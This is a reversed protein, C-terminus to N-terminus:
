SSSFHVDSQFIHHNSLICTPGELSHIFHPHYGCYVCVEVVEYKELLDASFSVLAGFDILSLPQKLWKLRAKWAPLLPHRQTCSWFRLSWELTFVAFSIHGLIPSIM